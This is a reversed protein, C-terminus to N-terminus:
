SLVSGVVAFIVVVTSIWVLLATAFRLWWVAWTSARATLRVGLWWWLPLSTVLGVVVVTLRSAEIFEIAFVWATPVVLLFVLAGLHSTSTDGVPGSSNFGRGLALSVVLLPVILAQTGGWFADVGVRQDRFSNSQWM